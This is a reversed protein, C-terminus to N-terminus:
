PLNAIQDLVTEIHHNTGIKRWTEANGPSGGNTAKGQIEQDGVSFAAGRFEPRGVLDKCVSLFQAFGNPTKIANKGKWIMFENLISYRLQALITAQGVPPLGPHAIAYDGYAPLRDPKRTGSILKLWAQWDIRPPRNWANRTMPALSMPFAGAVVTLSRWASITPIIGLNARHLQAIVAANQDAVSGLDVILDLSSPTLGLFQALSGLATALDGEDEFDEPILRIAVGKQADSFKKVAKQYAPSRGTGTVPIACQGNAKAANLCAVVAGLPAANPAGGKVDFFLLDVFYPDGTPWGSKSVQRPVVDAAQSPIAEFLPTINATSKLQAVAPFEARKGKLIPVYHKHGSM